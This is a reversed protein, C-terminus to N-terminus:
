KINDFYVKLNIDIDEGKKNIGSRKYAKGIGTDTIAYLVIDEGIVVTKKKIIDFFAVQLKGLYYTLGLYQGNLSRVRSNYFIFGEEPIRMVQKGNNDLITIAYEDTQEVETVPKVSILFIYNGNDAIYDVDTKESYYKEWLLTGNIDFLKIEYKEDIISDPSAKMTKRVINKMGIWLNNHSRLQQDKINVETIQGNYVTDPTLTIRKVTDGKSDIFLINDYMGLGNKRREAWLPKTTMVAEMLSLNNNAFAPKQLVIISLTDTQGFCHTALAFLALMIITKKDSM